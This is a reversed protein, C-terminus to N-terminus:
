RTMRRLENIDASQREVKAELVALRTWMGIAIGGVLVLQGLVLGVITLRDGVSLRVRDGLHNTM